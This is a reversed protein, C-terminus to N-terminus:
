RHQTSGSTGCCRPPRECASGGAGADRGAADDEGSGARKEVLLLRRKLGTRCANRGAVSKAAAKTLLWCMIHWGDLSAWVRPTRSAEARTASARVVDVQVFCGGTITQNIRQKRFNLWSGGVEDVTAM